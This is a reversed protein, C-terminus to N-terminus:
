YCLLDYCKITVTIFIASEYRPADLYEQEVYKRKLMSLIEVCEYKKLIM